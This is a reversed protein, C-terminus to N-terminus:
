IGVLTVISGTVTRAWWEVKSVMNFATGLKHSGFAIMGAFAIVPLATGIGYLLPLLVSSGVNFSQM